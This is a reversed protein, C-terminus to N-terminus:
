IKIKSFKLPKLKASRFGYEKMHRLARQHVAEPDKEIERALDLRAKRVEAVIPDTFELSEGVKIKTNGM